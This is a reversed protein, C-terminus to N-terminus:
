PDPERFSSLEVPTHSHSPVVVDGAEEGSDKEDVDERVDQVAEAELVDYANKDTQNSAAKQQPSAFEGESTEQCDGQHNETHCRHKDKGDEMGMLRLRGWSLRLIRWHISSAHALRVSPSLM